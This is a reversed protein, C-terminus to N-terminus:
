SPRLAISKKFEEATQLHKRQNCRLCSPVLNTIDNTGGRLLPIKHDLSRNKKTLKTGCYACRFHLRRLLQRWQELNLYCSIGSRKARAVRSQHRRKESNRWYRAHDVSRFREPNAIRQGKVHARIRERNKQYYRRRRALQQKLNIRRERLYAQKSQERRKPRNQECWERGHQKYWQHNHARVNEPNRKRWLRQQERERSRNKIRWQAKWERQYKRLRKSHKRRWKRTYERFYANIKAKYAPDKRRQKLRARRKAPDKYPMPRMM